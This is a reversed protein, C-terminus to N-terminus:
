LYNWEFALDENTKNTFILINNRNGVEVSGGFAANTIKEHDGWGNLIVANLGRM